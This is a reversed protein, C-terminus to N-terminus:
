CKTKGNKKLRANTFDADEQKRECLHGEVSRDM